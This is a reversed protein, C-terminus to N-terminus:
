NTKSPLQKFQKLEKQFPTNEFSFGKDRLVAIEIDCSSIITYFNIKGIYSTTTKSIVDKIMM